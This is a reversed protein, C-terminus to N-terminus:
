VCVESLNYVVGEDEMSTFRPHLVLEPSGPTAISNSAFALLYDGDNDCMLLFDILPSFYLRHSVMSTPSSSTWRSVSSAIPSSLSTPSLSTPSVPLYNVLRVLGLSLLAIGAFLIVATAGMSKERSRKTVHSQGSKTPTQQIPESYSMGGDMNEKTDILKQQTARAWEISLAFEELISVIPRHETRIKERKIRQDEIWQQM